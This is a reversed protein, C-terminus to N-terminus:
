RKDKSDVFTLYVGYFLYVNGLFSMALSMWSPGGDAIRVTASNVLLLMGLMQAHYWKM